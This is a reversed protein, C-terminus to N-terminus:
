QSLLRRSDVHGDLVRPRTVAPDIVITFGTGRDGDLYIVAPDAYGAPPFFTAPEGEAPSLVGPGPISIAPADPLPARRFLPGDQDIFRAGSTTNVLVAARYTGHAPDVALRIFQGRLAAEERLYLIRNALQRASADLAVGRLTALRPVVLAALLGIIA